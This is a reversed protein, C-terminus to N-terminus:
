ISNVINKFIEGREEFNKFQDLSACAPSLLVISNKVKKASTFALKVAKELTAPICYNLTKQPNQKNYQIIHKAFIGSAEGILLIEKISASEQKGLIGEIGEEKPRGGLILFIPTKPFTKLATLTAEVSTSKSDNFFKVGQVEKVFEIRHPLPSFSSIATLIDKISLKAFDMCVAIAVLINKLNHEGQLNAFDPVKCIFYTNKYLSNSTLSYGQKLIENTSFDKPSLRFGDGQLIKQKAKIYGQMGGHHGLHNSSINLLIGADFHFNTIELQFSSVELVCFEAEFAEKVLPSKGINGGLFTKRGAKQLIHNVLSATTSKGNSGTIGIIKLSKPAFKKFFELDSMISLSHERAKLVLPHSLSIGPSLIMADFSSLDFSSSDKIEGSSKSPDDDYIHTEIDREKCFELVGRGSIGLGFILVNKM